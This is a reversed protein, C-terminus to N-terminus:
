NKLSRVPSRSFVEKKNMMESHQDLYLFIRTLGVVHRKYLSRGSLNRGDGRGGTFVM